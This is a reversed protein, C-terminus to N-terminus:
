KLKQIVNFLMYTVLYLSHREVELLIKYFGGEHRKKQTFKGETSKGGGDEETDKDM